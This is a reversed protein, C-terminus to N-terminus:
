KMKECVADAEMKTRFVRKGWEAKLSEDYTFKSVFTEDCSECASEESYFPCGGCPTLVGYVVEGVKPLEESAKVESKQGDIMERVSDEIHMAIIDKVEKVTNDRIERMIKEITPSYEEAGCGDDGYMETRSVLHLVHEMGEIYARDKDNLMEKSYSSM